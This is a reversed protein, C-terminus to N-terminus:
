LKLFPSYDEPQVLKTNTRNSYFQKLHIIVIFFSPLYQKFILILNLIFTRTRCNLNNHLFYAAKSESAFDGQKIAKYGYWFYVRKLWQSLAKYTYQITDSDMYKDEVLNHILKRWGKNIFYEEMFPNTSSPYRVFLACPKYSIVFPQRKAIRLEFDLDLMTGIEPDLMGIKIIVVRRFVIATWEPHKGGLMKFLGEPPTYYGERPWLNLPITIVEGKDTVHITAGASFIADPYKKFGEMATKFFDPLVVDDDSLFSFFPTEVHQMGYIFNNVLGINEKHCFYGVRTDHKAIESVVAATEDGSANDYVYVKFYPYTQNLVSRIARALLIPRRFTPIITTIIAKSNDSPDM